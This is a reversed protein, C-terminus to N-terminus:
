ASTSRTSNRARRAFVAITLAAQMILISGLLLAYGEFHISALTDRVMWIGIAALATGAATVALRLWAASNATAVFTAVSQVTIVTALIFWVHYNARPPRLLILSLSLYAVALLTLACVAALAAKM